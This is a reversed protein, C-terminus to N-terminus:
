LLHQFHNGSEEKCMLVRRVMNDSVKVLTEMAILTIEREINCKLEDLTTPSNMYVRYKLYGMPFFESKNLRSIKSAVLGKFYGLRCFM